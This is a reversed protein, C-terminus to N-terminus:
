NMSTLSTSTQPAGNSDRLYLKGSGTDGFVIIQTSFGGGSIVHPFVLSEPTSVADNSPPTTTMLFENRENYRGRLAAVSVPTAATLKVIGHFPTAVTPFLENLFKATQGNAPVTVTAPAVGAILGDMGTLEVTLITATSTPNAIALGSQISGVQGNVGSSEAYMRFSSGVPGASIGTESVLTGNNRYLLIAQATPGDSSGFPGTVVPTIYISGGQLTASTGATAFRVSSHVPISYAFESGTVGNITVVVPMNQTGSGFFQITGTEVAGSANTLILETSWGGGDTFHPVLTIAQAAGLPIVPLTTFVFESRENVIGRLALAGVPVTSTFTFTGQIDVSLNFPAQNLFAAKQHYAPLLFSGSGFDTGTADTFYYSITADQGTSNSLAIGTNVADHVEAYIRGSPIAPSAPV